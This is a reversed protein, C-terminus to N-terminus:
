WGGEPGGPNGAKPDDGFLAGIGLGILGGIIAPVAALLLIAVVIAIPWVLAVVDSDAVDTPVVDSAAPFGGASVVVAIMGALGLVAGVVLGVLWGRWQAAKM